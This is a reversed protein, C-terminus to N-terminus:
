HRHPRSASAHESSCVDLGYTGLVVVLPLVRPVARPSDSCGGACARAVTTRSINAGARQYTSGRERERHAHGRYQGEPMHSQRRDQGIVLSAPWDLSLSLSPYLPPCSLILYTTLAFPLCFLGKSHLIPLVRLRLYLSRPEVPGSPTRPSVRSAAAMM